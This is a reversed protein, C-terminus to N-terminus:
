QIGDARRRIGNRIRGKSNAKELETIRENLTSIHAADIVSRRHLVMIWHQAEVISKVVPDNMADDVIIKVDTM